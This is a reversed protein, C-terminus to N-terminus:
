FLLSKKAGLCLEQPDATRLPDCVQAALLHLCTFGYIMSNTGKVYADLQEPSPLAAIVDAEPV